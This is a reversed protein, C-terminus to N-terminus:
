GEVFAMALAELDMLDAQAEALHKLEKAVEDNKDLCSSRENDLSRLYARLPEQEDKIDNIRALNTSITAQAAAIDANVQSLRETVEGLTFDPGPVSAHQAEPLSRIIMTRAWKDSPAQRLISSTPDALPKLITHLDRRVYLVINRHSPNSTNSPIRWRFVGDDAGDSWSRGATLSVIKPSQLDVWPHEVTEGDGWGSKENGWGQGGWATTARHSALIDRHSQDDCTVGQLNTADKLEGPPHSTSLADPLVISLEPQHEPTAAPPTVLVGSQSSPSKETSM